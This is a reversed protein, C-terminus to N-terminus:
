AEDESAGKQRKLGRLKGEIFADIDGNMVGQVDSTEVGTRLDIVKQYPQFVYSRIQSGWAVDSKEGYQRDLEAKKKDIEVQMLKAQLLRMATARNASQSREAQCAVVIGSPTHVIRVATEVKNVNQGGKGGARFTDIELDKEDITIVVDDDLEPVVDVSAFSTHRRANSDFPSIRVLRHVGRECALYGFAYEGTVKLTASKIGAEDGPQIDMVSSKFGRGEIWRTYMRLLMDAWDCSETGGAGSNLTLFCNHRDNEGSMLQLLEFDALLKEVKGYETGFEALTSTKSDGEPEEDALQKLVGVDDVSREIALFPGVKSRLASVEEVQKQALEKRDWFGPEAM